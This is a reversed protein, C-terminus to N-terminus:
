EEEHEAFTARDEAARLLEDALDEAARLGGEYTLGQEDCLMAFAIVLEDWRRLVAMM